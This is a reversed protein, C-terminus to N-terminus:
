LKPICTSVIRFMHVSKSCIKNSGSM